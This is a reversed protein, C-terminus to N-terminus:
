HAEVEQVEKASKRLSLGQPIKVVTDVRSVEDIASWNGQTSVSIESDASGHPVKKRSVLEAENLNSRTSDSKYMNYSAYEDKLFLCIVACDDVKACPYKLRWARVAGKILCKAATSRRRASAVIRVVEANSLADWVGDTALVVFEDNDTLKRYSVDPISILGYDKLCFDGFARAMALGPCDVDPMWIRYVSPEADVAFIRGECNTIREAESPIDPKLDVTLQVPVLEDEETKTCLIARSDGLNAIMLHDGKKVVTVATSGSCFSDINIEECIEQDMEKFSKVICAEWTSLSLNINGTNNESHTDKYDESDSSDDTDVEGGAYKCGSIQAVRVAKSIKSPLNDRVHRAIIHGYPGHGDFVGCFFVDEDGTFDQWVTMADQNIGKRGQQSYMSTFDSCGQLMIRAGGDGYQVSEEEDEVKAKPKPQDYQVRQVVVREEMFRGSSGHMGDKSCCAGM